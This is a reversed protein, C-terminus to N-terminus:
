CFLRARTSRKYGVMNQALDTAAANLMAMHRIQLAYRM